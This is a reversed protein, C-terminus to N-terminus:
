EWENYKPIDLFRLVSYLEESKNMLPTGTMALRYDAQLRYAGRAAFTDRNKINHAEDLIVRHFYVDPHLLIMGTKKTESMKFEASLSDYNTLVVDYSLLQRVSIQRGKAHFVHVRVKHGPRTKEYIERPWQQLLALPAVILTTKRAPDKPPNAFILALAQITKGLGMDDALVGGKDTGNEHKLLWELGIRQHPMLVCSMADPTDVGRPTQEQKLSADSIEDDSAPDGFISDKSDDDSCPGGFLSSEDDEDDDDSITIVDSNDVNTMTSNQVRGRTESKSHISSPSPSGFLTGDDEDDSLIVMDVQHNTGSPQSAKNTDVGSIPIQQTALAPSYDDSGELNLDSSTAVKAFSHSPPSYLSTPGEPNPPPNCSHVDKHDTISHRRIKHPQESVM